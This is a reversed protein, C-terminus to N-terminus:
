IIKPIKYNIVAPKSFRALSEYLDTRDKYYHAYRLFIVDEWLKKFIEKQSSPESIFRHAVSANHEFGFKKEAAFKM